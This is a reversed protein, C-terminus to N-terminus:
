RLASWTVPNNVRPNETSASKEKEQKCPLRESCDGTMQKVATFVASQLVCEKTRTEGGKHYQLISCQLVM